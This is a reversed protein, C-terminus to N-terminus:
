EKLSHTDSSGVILVNVEIERITKRMSPIGFLYQILVTKIPYL